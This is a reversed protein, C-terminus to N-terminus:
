SWHGTVAWRQRCHKIQDQRAHQDRADRQHREVHRRVAALLHREADGREEGHGDEQHDDPLAHRGGGLFEREDTLSVARLKPPCKM